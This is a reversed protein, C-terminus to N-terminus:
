EPRVRETFIIPLPASVTTFTDQKGDLFAEKTQGPTVTLDYRWLIEAVVRRLELMALRKGVCAYPGTNFPIYVSRDRVLEPMTTWREPIFEGPQEFARADRFVTYSPVQVITDGPIFREGIWLGEPPTVRQTGSPVPPHLRMVEHLVADLLDITTLHEHDLSPLSDLATQLRKVLVPDWALHFFTHTLAAAVSDSGAIVILQADGHLNWHDRQTKAPKSNYAKLIWSFIDPQEPEKLKREDILKQIWDLFEIYNWNMVPTRKLFPLLWPLHTFFAINYMDTRITQFIYAAKGNALMNSSKNFALDEMVDFVFFSFWEAVDMPRGEHREVAALLQTIAKTIRSNYGQLAKTTFGQDWVKRRRAHEQKDRAMFLPVRPELLTYWPGKSVPAQSGYIIKVAEPDAISIERPGLRVYDGYQAHLKQVEEFLHLKKMSRATIYFNTLRALFPGPYNSLRHFFARYVLMSGYLGGVHCAATQAVESPAVNAIGAYSSLIAAAFVTSYFVFISPSSVDWEGRRFVGLHAAVGSAVGLLSVFIANAM